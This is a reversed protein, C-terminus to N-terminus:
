RGVSFYNIGLEKIDNPDFINRGDFIVAKSLKEKIKNFDPSRFVQWETVLILADSEDLVDYMDNFCAIKTKDKIDLKDLIDKNVMPDYAKISAGADLLDNIIVLSPAKRMDDTGPKFSLGWIAFTKGSLDDGFHQKVKDALLHKQQRNVLQVADLIPTDIKNSRAVYRLSSLDKPFCSGGFGCGPYIFKYGIRSDSGIGLRVSEIDVGLKATIRSIENMFSVKTALFVNAAYKTFEASRRSMVLIRDHNRVFPAYLRKLLNISYDIDSGLIIREPRKCQDVANGESLFEPNSLVDFFLDKNRQRLKNQIIEEVKDGTGVPVTSKIVIVLDKQLNEGIYNAVDHVYELNSSGDEMDPTGVAIFVLDVQNLYKNADLDFKILKKDLNDQLIDKLKPEFFHPEGSNLTDIKNKDPDICYVMNGFDSLCLATVLGVYGSGFVLVKM